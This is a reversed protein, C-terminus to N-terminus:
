QQNRPKSDLAILCFSLTQSITTRCFLIDAKSQAEAKISPEALYYYFTQLEEKKVQLFVYTEGTVLKNYELGNEIM